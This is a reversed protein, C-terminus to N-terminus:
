VGSGRLSNSHGRVNDPFCSCCSRRNFESYLDPKVLPFLRIVKYDTLTFMRITRAAEFENEEGTVYNKRNTAEAEGSV